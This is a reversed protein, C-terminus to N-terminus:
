VVDTPNFYLVSVFYGVRQKLPGDDEDLRSHPDISRNMGAALKGRFNTFPMRGQSCRLTDSNIMIRTKSRM